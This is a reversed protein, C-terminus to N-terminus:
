KLIIEIRNLPKNALRLFDRRRIVYRGANLGAAITKGNFRINQILHKGCDKKGRNIFIAEIKRACFNTTIGAIGKASFQARALKPEILLDGYEGRLGFAQTVMTLIFWSASGTLYSYMGRGQSNFYEPLCPYIKSQRSNVAMRYISDMVVYAENSFGRKYLAYAFMVCMHNFFAGNEKEGYAFSFARGLAYQEDKFDTNLRFGGLQKHQLYKRCSKFLTKVQGAAAIGSMVAFVQGTLTMRLRGGTTGEVRRKNNDYYGNFFGEKLWETKRIHSSIWDAKRKLDNVLKDAPVNILKGSVETKVASFYKELLSLKQKISSYDIPKRSTSDLLIAIEKLLPINKLGTKEIIECLSNLNQAYMASFAVSEGNESAMDLGDNWDAGELRIHNHPGVNFFQVLNQALIHELVTGSYIKGSKTKLQKGYNESWAPDKERGRSLQCDRFYAIKEFLVKLDSTQHVYLLTTILPWVGHDMWVRPINNRDAIFEGPKAGIITANSGDIRVGRFNNILLPRVEKPDHLILSLCDQWLDRWGRGGKGYDFDPLFSCGYIKRLTPQTNVWRFWNNFDADSFAISNSSSIKQWYAKTKNLAAIAKQESNFKKFITLASNKGETIGMVIIYSCTQGPKLLKTKFRLGAMPEKGQPNLNKDPLLNKFVAAPAELDSGEGCFEEQTPYIYQPALSRDEAGFVFYSAANKKHGSEDFLLTPTVIVGNKAIAVRSLLSTVHRHDHLNAASRGYIPVAATPTFTIKKSSTNTIKVLMIEVPEAGSPVFSTIQARLGTQKNERTVAQWLLGAELQFNDRELAANDKSVGGASWVKEPSIYIWFNRSSRLNGLRARSAPELLFSNFNVKIDGHLDPTISSMFPLSNCLPFYLTNIDRANESIFSGDNDTFNWLPKDMPELNIM